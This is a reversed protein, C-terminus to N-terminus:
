AMQDKASNDAGSQKKKKLALEARRQQAKPTAQYKRDKDAKVRKFVEGAEGSEPDRLAKNKAKERALATARKKTSKDLMGKTAEITGKQDKLRKLKLRNGKLGAIAVIGAALTGGIGAKIFNNKAETTEYWKKDRRDRAKKGIHVRVSSGTPRSTRWNEKDDLGLAKAVDLEIREELNNLYTKGVKNVFDRSEEKSGLFVKSKGVKYAGYLLATLAGATATDKFAQKQWFRKRRKNSRVGKKVEYIDHAADGLKRGTRVNKRVKNFAARAQAPNVDEFEIEFPNPGRRMEYEAVKLGLENLGKSVLKEKESNTM